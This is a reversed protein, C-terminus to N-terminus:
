HIPQTTIPKPEGNRGGEGAFSFLGLQKKACLYCLNAETPKSPHAMVFAEPNTSREVPYKVLSLEKNPELLALAYHCLKCLKKDLTAKLVPDLPPSLNFNM